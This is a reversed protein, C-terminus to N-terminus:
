ELARVLAGGGKRGPAPLTPCICARPSPPPAWTGRRPPLASLPCTGVVDENPTPRRAEEADDEAEALEAEDEADAFEDVKGREDVAM